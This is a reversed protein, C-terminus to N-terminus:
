LRRCEEPRGVRGRVRLREVRQEIWRRTQRPMTGPGYSARGLRVVRGHEIEWRLADSITKSPRGSLAFGEREVESALQAVTRPGCEILVVTLLLLGRNM